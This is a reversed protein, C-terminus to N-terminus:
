DTDCGFIINYINLFSNKIKNYYRVSKTKGILSKKRQKISKIKSEIKYFTKNNTLLKNNIITNKKKIILTRNILNIADIHTILDNELIKIKDDCKIKKIIFIEKNQKIKLTTMYTSENNEIIQITQLLNDIELKQKTAILIEKNQKIENIKYMCQKESNELITIIKSLHNNM